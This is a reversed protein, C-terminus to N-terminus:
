REVSQKSTLDLQKRTPNSFFISEANEETTEYYMLYRLDKPLGPGDSPDPDFLHETINFGNANVSDVLLHTVEHAATHALLSPFDWGETTHIDRIPEVYVYSGNDSSSGGVPHGTIKDAFMLHMFFFQNAGWDYPVWSHNGFHAFELFLFTNSAGDDVAALSVSASSVV